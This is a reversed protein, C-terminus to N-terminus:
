DDLVLGHEDNHIDQPTIGRTLIKDYELINNINHRVAGYHEDVYKEVGNCCDMIDKEIPSVNTTADPTISSQLLDIYDEYADKDHQKYLYLSHLLDSKDAHGGAFEMDFNPALTVKDTDRNYILGSNYASFDSDNLIYARSIYSKYFDSMFNHVDEKSQKCHNDKAVNRIAKEMKTVWEDIPHMTNSDVNFGVHQLADSTTYFRENQGLFNVSLITYNPSIAPPEYNNSVNTICTRNYVTPVGLTHLIRSGMEETMAYSIEGIPMIILKSLVCIKDPITSSKYLSDGLYTKYSSHHNSTLDQMLDSFANSNVLMFEKTCRGAMNKRNLATTVYDMQPDLDQMKAFCDVATQISDRDTQFWSTNLDRIYDDITMISAKENSLVNYYTEFKNSNKGVYLGVKKSSEEHRNIGLRQALNDLFKQAINM